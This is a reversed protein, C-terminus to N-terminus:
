GAMHAWVMLVGAACALASLGVLFLLSWVVKEVASRKGDARVAILVLPLAVLSGFTVMGAALSLMAMWAIQPPTVLFQLCTLLVTVLLWAWFRTSRYSMM